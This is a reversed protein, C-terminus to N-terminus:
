LLSRRSGTTVDIVNFVHTGEKNDKLRCLRAMLNHANGTPTGILLMPKNMYIHPALAEYFVDPDMYGIEDVMFIDADDVVNKGCHVWGGGGLLRVRDDTSQAGPLLNAVRQLGSLVLHKCSFVICLKYNPTQNALYDLSTLFGDSM